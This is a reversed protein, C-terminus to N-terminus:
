SSELVSVPVYAIIRHDENRLLIKGHVIEPNEGIAKAYEKAMDKSCGLANRVRTVITDFDTETMPPSYTVAKRLDEIAIRM